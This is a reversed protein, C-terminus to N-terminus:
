ERIIKEQLYNRLWKAGDKFAIFEKTTLREEELLEEIKDFTPLANNIIDWSKKYCLTRNYHIGDEWGQTYDDTSSKFIIEKNDEIAFDRIWEDPIHGYFSQKKNVYDVFIRIVDIILDARFKNTKEIWYKKDIVNNNEIEKFHISLLNLLEEIPTIEKIKEIKDLSFGNDIFFEQSNKLNIIKNAYDTHFIKKVLEQYEKKLRYKTM